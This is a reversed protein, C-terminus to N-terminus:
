KAPAAPASKPECFFALCGNMDRKYTWGGPCDEARPLTVNPCTLGARSRLDFTVRNMATLVVVLLIFALTLFIIFNWSALDLKKLSAPSSRRRAM